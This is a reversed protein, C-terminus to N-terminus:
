SKSNSKANLLTELRQHAGKEVTMEDSQKKKKKKKEENLWLMKAELM